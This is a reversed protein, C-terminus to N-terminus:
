KPWPAAAVRAAESRAQKATAVDDLSDCVGALKQWTGYSNQHLSVREQLLSKALPLQQAKIAADVLYINFVDRQAHSGGIPQYEYRLPMLRNVASAFDGRYYDRIAACVPAAINEAVHANTTPANTAYRSLSSIQKNIEDMQGTSGFAMTYHPETFLLVHDGNREASVTALADWRDGVDVGFSVLRALLSAANQVDLYFKSSDPWVADDYLELVRAYEGKELAFLATHWWLHDKFPNRDGWKTLPQNLWALGQQLDGQMEYVHAVAHIAWLDDPHREVAERGLMEARTYDGVEELAFAYMGLMQAYGPMSSKWAPMVRAAADRMHAARGLWFLSFHQLKLALIDLPESILVMDWNHCALHTDKEIWAKLAALHGTERANLGGRQRLHDVCAQAGPVTTQSGLSLLLFGKLLHAMAFEPADECLAKLKPFATTRYDLYDATIEDFITAQKTNAGTLAVGRADFVM